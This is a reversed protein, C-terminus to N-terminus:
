KLLIKFNLMSLQIQHVEIHHAVRNEPVFDTKAAIAYLFFLLKLRPAPTLSSGRLPCEMM